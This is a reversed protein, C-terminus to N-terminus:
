IARGGRWRRGNHYDRPREGHSAIVIARKIIERVRDRSIGLSNAIDIYSVGNLLEKKIFLQRVTLANDPIHCFRWILRGNKLPTDELHLVNRAERLIARWYLAAPRHGYRFSFEVRSPLRDFEQYYEGLHEMLHKKYASSRQMLGAQELAKSWTGFRIIFSGVCPGEHEQRWASYRLCSLTAAGNAAERIKALMEESSYRSWSHERYYLGAAAVAGSWSGFRLCYISASPSRKSRLWEYSTWPAGREAWARKLEAILEEDTYRKKYRLATGRGSKENYGKGWCRM